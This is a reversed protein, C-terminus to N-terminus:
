PLPVVRFLLHPPSTPRLTGPIWLVREGNVNIWCDDEITVNPVTRYLNSAHIQCEPQIELDGLNTKLHGGDHSLARSALLRVKWPGLIYPM